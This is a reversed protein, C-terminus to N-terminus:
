KKKFKKRTLWLGVGLAIFASGFLGLSSTAEGTVPLIDPEKTPIQSSSKPPEPSVPVARYVVTKEIDSTEATVGTIPDIEKLDSTYGTLMPSTVLDFSTGNVAQWEGTTVEGTVKDTTITRIFHLPKAVFDNAATTGNEYVYHVTENVIKEETTTSVGHKLHVVYHQPTDTFSTEETPYNDSVLDYGQTEYSSIADSTTYNSADGTGGALSDTKLTQGTVDDIYTVDITGQNRTYIYNVIQDNATYQGDVPDGNVEKFTYGPITLQNTTYDTNIDGSTSIPNSIINGQDDVYNSIVTGQAITYTFVINRLQQLNMQGGTSASISFSMAKNTGILASVDQEWIQTGYNVTMIKSTGNYQVTFDVFDNNSPAPIDQASSDITKAQGNLGDVFTGFANGGRTPGFQAPDTSFDPNGVDPNYFTDLKFGFAGQVGGIGLAGGPAGVVNVDGPQFLFGIGDAGGQASNKDGLNVQGTFSFDQSMDIKNKLTVNGVQNGTNPTLTQTYTGTDYPYNAASGNEQFYNLFDIPYVTVTRNTAAQAIAYVPRGILKDPLQTLSVGIASTVVISGIVVNKIKM